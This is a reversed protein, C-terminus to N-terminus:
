AASKRVVGNLWLAFMVFLICLYDVHPLHFYFQFLGFFPFSSSTRALSRAVSAFLRFPCVFLSYLLPICVSLRFSTTGNWKAFVGSLSHSRHSSFAAGCVRTDDTLPLLLGFFTGAFHRLTSGSARREIVESIFHCLRVRRLVDM